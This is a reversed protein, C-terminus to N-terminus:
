IVKWLYLSSFVLLFDITSALLLPAVLYVLYIWDSGAKHIVGIKRVTVYFKSKIISNIQQSDIAKSFEVLARM